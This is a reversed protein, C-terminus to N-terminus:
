EITPISFKLKPFALIYIFMIVISVLNFFSYPLYQLTSVGLTSAMYVGTVTWPIIPETLTGGEEMTRSLVSPHLKYKKYIEQFIPGLTLFTFQTSNVSSNVIFTIFWTVIMLSKVGKIIKLLLDLITQLTGILQLMSGFTLATILFLVTPMMSIMGGRNLLNNLNNPITEIPLSSMSVNFGSVFSKISNQFGFDQFIIGLILALLSGFFMTIIPSYGKFSLVFVIVAPLLLLINFNYMSELSDLIQKTQEITRMDISTKASLGLSIFIISSIIIAPISVLLMSKVHEILGSGAGIASLVTTDSIPSNKDGVYAGSIIAGAILPIPVGTAQAVGIFAVGSTAAAGWSTGTFIAVFSTVIFATFPILSPNIYKVGYYILMPVSGSYIWTGVIAGILILILVGLWTDAIKKVFAQEMEKWKLGSLYAIICCILTGIILLFEISIGYHVTGILVGVLIFILPFIKWFTSIKYTKM